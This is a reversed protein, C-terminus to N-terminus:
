TPGAGVIGEGGAWGAARHIRNPRPQTILNHTDALGASESRYINIESWWLAVLPVQSNRALDDLVSNKLERVDAIVAQV